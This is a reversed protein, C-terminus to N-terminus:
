STRRVVVPYKTSLARNRYARGTRAQPQIPAQREAPRERPATGQHTSLPAHRLRPLLWRRCCPRRESISPAVPYRTAGLMARDPPM